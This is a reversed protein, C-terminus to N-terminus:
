DFYVITRNNEIKFQTKDNEQNCYKWDLILLGLGNIM